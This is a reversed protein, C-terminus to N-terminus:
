RLPVVAYNLLVIGSKEFIKHGTLTLKSHRAAPSIVPVGGRLLVPIVAIEVTDVLAADLLSAFLSGGGFLWIDKGPQERLSRVTKEVDGTVLSVDPYNLQTLTRSFVFVKKGPMTPQGHRVMFEFTRRGMLFTDFQDFLAAFDIDPDSAIWDAGGTSDAIFGDLSMAVQYRIKRM